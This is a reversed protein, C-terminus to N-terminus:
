TVMAVGSSASIRCSRVIARSRSRRATSRPYHRIPQDPTGLVADVGDEELGGPTPTDVSGPAVMTEDKGCQGGHAVRGAPGSRALNRAKLTDSGIMKTQRSSQDACLMADASRSVEHDVAHCRIIHNLDQAEDVIAHQQAPCGTPRLSVGAVSTTPAARVCGQGSCNHCSTIQLPDTKLIPM